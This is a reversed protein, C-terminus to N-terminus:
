VKRTGPQRPQATRISGRAVQRLEAEELLQRQRVLAVQFRDFRDEIFRKVDARAEPEAWEYGLAESPSAELVEWETPPLVATGLWAHSHIRGAQDIIWDTPNNLVDFAAGPTADQQMLSMFGHAAARALIRARQRDELTASRSTAPLAAIAKSKAMADLRRADAKISQATAANKTAQAEALVEGSALKEAWAEVDIWRYRHAVRTMDYGGIVPRPIPSPGWPPVRNRWDKLTDPAIGLIYAAGFKTVTAHPDGAQARRRADDTEARAREILAQKLLFARSTM